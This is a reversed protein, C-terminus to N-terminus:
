PALTNSQLESITQVNIERSRDYWVIYEKKIERKEKETFWRSFEIRATKSGAGILDTSQFYGEWKVKLATFTGAPVTVQEWGVVTATLEQSSKYSSTQYANKVKWTKGVVLPFSLYGSDPYWQLKDGNESIQSITNMESTETFRLEGTASKLVASTPSTATVTWENLSKGTRGDISRYSWSDGIKMTPRGITAQQQPGTTVSGQPGTTVTQAVAVSATMVLMVMIGFFKSKM